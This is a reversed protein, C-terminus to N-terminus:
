GALPSGDTEPVFTLVVRHEADLLQAAQERMDSATVAEYRDAETNLRSADGFFTAFDALREARDDLTEIERVLRSVTVTRARAREQEEVGRERIARVEREVAAELTAAGVGPMATAGLVFLGGAEGCLYWSFVDQAIRETHVLSKYLRSCRGSGLIDALLDVAHAAPDTQRPAHYSLYVRPLPVRDPFTDRLEGALPAATHTARSKRPGAPLDAFYRAVLDRARGPDFDGTICLTANQPGYFRRYFDRVDELTAADLHEMFGIVPWYYPFQPEYSRALLRELWTGYPQNDVRWRRENKVVQRQTEFAEQTLAPLLFGMRDSELWLALELHRAPLTEYYMTKDFSTTGNASGGAQEVYAFHEEDGVHESGQFLMHEFLHAFGTRGPDEDKSGVHYTVNVAVLPLAHDEALVVTLGNSLEYQECALTVPARTSRADPPM